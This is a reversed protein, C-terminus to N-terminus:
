YPFVVKLIFYCVSSVTISSSGRPLVVKGASKVLRNKFFRSSVPRKITTDFRVPLFYKTSAIQIRGMIYGDPIVSGEFLQIENIKNNYWKYGKRDDRNYRCKYSCYYIPKNKKFLKMIPLGCCSCKYSKFLEWDSVRGLIWGDPITFKEDFKRSEELKINHYWKKGYNANNEGSVDKLKKSNKIKQITMSDRSIGKISLNGREWGDPIGDSKKIMKSETTCSNSIWMYGTSKGKRATSLYEANKTKLKNYELSTIYRESKTIKCMLLFAHILKNSEASNNPYMKTLLLHCIFHEKATLKILNTKDNTGGVCKPIIHHTETYGTPVNIKRYDIIKNYIKNYNM